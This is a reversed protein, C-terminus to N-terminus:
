SFDLRKKMMDCISRYPCLSFSKYKVAFVFFAQLKLWKRLFHIDDTRFRTYRAKPRTDWWVAPFYVRVLSSICGLPSILYVSFRSSIGFRRNPYFFDYWFLVVKKTPSAPNSGVFDSVVSKCDTGNPREPVRGYYTLTGNNRVQSWTFRYNYFPPIIAFLFELM